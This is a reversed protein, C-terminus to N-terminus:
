AEREPQNPLGMTVIVDHNTGDAVLQIPGDIPAGDLTTSAVGRQAGSPNRVTISYKSDGHRYEVSFEKWGSPVCPDM